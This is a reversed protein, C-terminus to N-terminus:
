AEKSQQQDTASTSSVSRRVVTRVTSRRTFAKPPAPDPMRRPPDFRDSRSTESEARGTLESDDSRRDTRPFSCQEWAAVMDFVEDEVFDIPALVEEDWPKRDSSWSVACATAARQLGNQSSDAEKWELVSLSAFSDQDMRPMKTILTKDNLSSAHTRPLAVVLNRM